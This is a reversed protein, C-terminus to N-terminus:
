GLKDKTYLCKQRQILMHNYMYPFGPFYISFWVWLMYYMDFSINLANPLSYSYEARIRLPYIFTAALYILVMEGKTNLILYLEIPILLIQICIKSVGAGIPYLILFFNYRNLLFLWCKFNQSVFLFNLDNLNLRCWKLFYVDTNMLNFTYYFYRTIESLSWALTVM